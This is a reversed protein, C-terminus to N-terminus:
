DTGGANYPDVGTTKINNVTTSFEDDIGADGESVNYGAVYTDAPKLMAADTPRVRVGVPSFKEEIEDSDSEFDVEVEDDPTVSTFQKRLWKLM